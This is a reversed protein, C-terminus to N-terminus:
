VDTLTVEVVTADEASVPKENGGVWLSDGYPPYYGGWPDVWPNVGTPLINRVEFHLHAGGVGTDGSRAIPRTIDAIYARVEVLPANLHAYGTLWVQITGNVSIAHELLVFNGYASACSPNTNDCRAYTAVVVGPAAAFVDTNLPLGNPRGGIDTGQHGEYRRPVSLAPCTFAFHARTWNSDPYCTIDRYADPLPWYLFPAPRPPEGSDTTQLNITAIFTDLEEETMAGLVALPPHSLEFVSRPTETPALEARFSSVTQTEFDFTYGISHVLDFGMFAGSGDSLIASRGDLPEGAYNFYSEIKGDAPNLKWVRLVDVRRLTRRETLLIYGDATWGLPDLYGLEDTIEDVILNRRQNDVFLQVRYGPGASQIELFAFQRFDPSWVGHYFGYGSGSPEKLPSAELRYIDRQGDPLASEIAYYPIGLDTPTHRSMGQAYIRNQWIYVISDTTQAHAPSVWGISILFILLRFRIM